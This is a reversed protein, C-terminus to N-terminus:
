YHGYSTSKDGEGRMKDIAEFTKILVQLGITKKSVKQMNKIMAEMLEAQAETNERMKNIVFDLAAFPDEEDNVKGAARLQMFDQTNSASSALYISQESKAEQERNNKVLPQNSDNNDQEPVVGPAGSVGKAGMLPGPGAGIGSIAGVSM